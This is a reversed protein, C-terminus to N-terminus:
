RLILEFAEAETLLGNDVYNFIGGYQRSRGVVRFRDSFEYTYYLSLLDRYKEAPLVLIKKESKRFAQSNLLKGMLGGVSRVEESEVLLVLDYTRLDNELKEKEEHDM